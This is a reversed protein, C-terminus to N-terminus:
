HGHNREKIISIIYYVGFWIAIAFMFIFFFYIIALMDFEENVTYMTPPITEIFNIM